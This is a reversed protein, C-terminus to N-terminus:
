RLLVAKRSIRGEATRLVYFYVGSSLGEPLWRVTHAGAEMNGSAIIDVERGSIDYARLDAHGEKKLSFRITTSPNFPNPVNQSLSIAPMPDEADTVTGVIIDERYVLRDHATVTLLLTDVDQPIPTSIDITIRGAEDAYGRGYCTGKRYLAGLAGALYSDVAFLTDSRALYGAHRPSIGTPTDTWGDMAPDGLLNLTYFCWRHAGPEYEDPLDVFPATEDKSRQNAAGLHTIGETFVADYFERQFHHSPGNTTGETFWGYRSNGLFASACHEITVMREGICRDVDFAGAYCGYTYLIPFNASAGDNLFNTDTIDDSYLKMVYSTGSHGSHAIWNTGMNFASYVSTNYWPGDREYLKIIDFDTPIGDTEFGYAGCYGILQDMEDGGYTVPDSYLHEGFLTACPSDSIVPSEQYMRIKNVFVAVGSSDEVVARGVAVESYFDEEGPEGWLSDGDANWNGDLAAYYLDSPIGDDEIYSSSQVACYFGRYPVIGDTGSDGDGDGGLLLHTIGHNLYQEIVANRIKEATDDGSYGAEIGEVTMISTLFGRRNYFDALRGFAEALSDRTVILYDYDNEGAPFLGSEVAEPNDVLAALRGATASDKRPGGARGEIRPSTEIIVEVERYYGAESAAARFGAPSFSGTAISHGRLYHTSFESPRPYTWGEREYAESKYAFRPRRDAGFSLPAPRQRPYLRCPRDIRNWGRKEIRVSKVREGKPLLIQVKRYPYSPEGTKGAQMTNPFLIRSFGGGADEISPNGFRYVCRTEGAKLLQVPALIVALIIISLRLHKM